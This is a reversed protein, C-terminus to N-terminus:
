ELYFMRSQTHLPVPAVKKPSIRKDDGKGRQGNKANQKKSKASFNHTGSDEDSLDSMCAIQM